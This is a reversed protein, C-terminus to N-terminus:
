VATYGVGTHRQGTLTLTEISTLSGAIRDCLSIGLGATAGFFQPIRVFCIYEAHVKVQGSEILYAM